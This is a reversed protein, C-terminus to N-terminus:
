GVLYENIVQEFEDFSWVVATAYGQEMVEKLFEEQEDSLDNKGYKFETYLGHFGNRPIALFTDSVGPTVGEEKMRKGELSVFITKGTKDKVAKKSRSGGNPIAFFLKKYRPYAYRFWKFCEAQLKGEQTNM